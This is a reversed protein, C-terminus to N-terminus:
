RGLRHVPNREGLPAMSPPPLSERPQAVPASRPVAAPTPQAVVPAEYKKAHGGHRGSGATTRSGSEGRREVPSLTATIEVEEPSSVKYPMQVDTYGPMHFRYTVLQGNAPRTDTVPATGLQRGDGMRSVEAGPPDSILHITKQGPAEAAPAAVEPVLETVPQDAKHSFFISAVVTLAVVVLAAVAFRQVRLTDLYTRVRTVLNPPVTPKAMGGARIATQRPVGTAAHAAVPAPTVPEGNVTHQRPVSTRPAMTPATAVPAPTVPAMMTAGLAAESGSLEVSGASLVAGVEEMSLPRAEPDKELCRLVLRDLWPPTESRIRSPPPAAQKLIANLLIVLQESHFPVTGTLMEYIVVGMAYIDAAASVEHCLAQEPSMYFPTGVVAGDITKHGVQAQKDGLLKAVGFDFLKSRFGGPMHADPVLFINDPKLDRHIIGMRHAAALADVVERACAVAEEIPLPGSSALRDRLSEGELLEMVFYVIGDETHGFDSIDVINPHRIENVAKAEQFFRSVLGPDTGLDTRLMKVAVRKGIMPHEALYVTGMGGEGLVRVIKYNGISRGIV